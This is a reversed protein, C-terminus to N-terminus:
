KGGPGGTSLNSYPYGRKRPLRKLLPVRGGFLTFPRRASPDLGPKPAGLEQSEGENVGHKKNTGTKPAHRARKPARRVRKPADGRNQSGGGRRLWFRRGNSAASGRLGDGGDGGPGEGRDAAEALGPLGPGNRRGAGRTAWFPAPRPGRQSAARHLLGIRFTRFSHPFLASLTSFSHSVLALLAISSHWSHCSADLINDSCADSQWHGASLIRSMQLLVNSFQPM